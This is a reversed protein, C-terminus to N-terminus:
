SKVVLHRFAPPLEGLEVVMRTKGNSKEVKLPTATNKSDCDLGLSGLSALISGRRDSSDQAMRNREQTSKRRMAPSLFADNAPKRGGGSTKSHYPTPSIVRPRFLTKSTAQITRFAPPLNDQAAQSGYRRRSTKSASSVTSHNSSKPLPAETKSTATGDSSVPPVRNATRVPLPTHKNKERLKWAAGTSTSHRSSSLSTSHRSTSLSQDGEKSASRKSKARRVAPKQTTSECPGQETTTEDAKVASKVTEGDRTSDVLAASPRNHDTPNWKSHTSTDLLPALAKPAVTDVPDEAVEPRRSKRVSDKSTGRRRSSGSSKRETSASRGKTTSSVSREKSSSRARTSKREKSSSRGKTTSSVSREKSSSRSRTSKREKSSSRGKSASSVSREKSSSRTRTTPKSSSSSKRDKTSSTTSTSPGKPSKMDEATGKVARRKGKNKNATEMAYQFMTPVSALVENNDMAVRQIPQRRRESVIEAATRRSTVSSGSGKSQKGHQTINLHFDLSTGPTKTQSKDNTVPTNSPVGVEMKLRAKPSAVMNMKNYAAKQAAMRLKWAPVKVANDTSNVSSSEVTMTDTEVTGTSNERTIKTARKKIEFKKVKGPAVVMKKKKKQTTSKSGVPLPDGELADGILGQTSARSTKPKRMPYYAADDATQSVVNRHLAKEASMKVIDGFGDDVKNGTMRNSNAAFNMNSSHLTATM